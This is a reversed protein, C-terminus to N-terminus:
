KLLDLLFKNLAEISGAKHPNLATEPAAEVARTVLIKVEREIDTNWARGQSLFCSKVRETWKRTRAQFLKGTLKVGYIEAIADKYVEQNICDELESNPMGNCISFFSSKNDILAYRKAQESSRRGDEDNDLYAISRFIENQLSQLRQTLHSVGGLVHTAITRDMFATALKPDAAKLIAELIRKDCEGEVVLAFKSSVLNDSIRTGLTKRIQAISKAPIADGSDVIINSGINNRDVFLPNHSSIIVQHNQGLESIVDRLTHIAGPHLHSEPEEIAVIGNSGRDRNEKLLAIAALSKIGDGKQTISTKTGDNILLSIDNPTIFNRMRSSVSINVEKIDPLFETLPAQITAALEELVPKELEALKNQAEVYEPNSRLNEMHLSLMNEIIDTILDETRIAPIYNFHIRQLIFKFTQMHKKALSKLERADRFIVIGAGKGEYMFLSVQLTNPAKLKFEAAFALKDAENFEFLLHFRTSNQRSYRNKLSAPYDREWDFQQERHNLIELRRQHMAIGAYGHMTAMALNLARLINSKGENNKGILVTQGELNNLAASKISRYNDIAFTKLRM